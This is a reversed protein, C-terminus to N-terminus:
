RGTAQWRQRWRRVTKPNLGFRGAAATVGFDTAYTLVALRSRVTPRYRKPINLAGLEKTTVTPM